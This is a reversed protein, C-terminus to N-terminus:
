IPYPQVRLFRKLGKNKDKANSDEIRAKTVQQTVM